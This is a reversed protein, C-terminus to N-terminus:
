ALRPSPGAKPIQLSPGRETFVVDVGQALDAAFETKLVQLAETVGQRTFRDVSRVRLANDFGRAAHAWILPHLETMHDRIIWAACASIRGRHSDALADGTRGSLTVACYAALLNATYQCGGRRALIDRLGAIFHDIDLGACTLPDVSVADLLCLTYGGKGWTESLRAGTRAAERLLAEHSGYRHPLLGTGLARLHRFDQPNLDILTRYAETFEDTTPAVARVLACFGALLAPSTREQGRFPALIEAARDMHARFADLNTQPVQGDCGNGRWAWAMDIHAHAVVLAIPYDGIHDLLIAEFEEIGDLLPADEPPAGDILAHEVAGVVDARAGYALLDAVPMGGPTASRQTDALRIETSLREWDETRALKQGKAQWIDRARDEASPDPMHIRVSGSREAAQPTMGDLTAPKWSIPRKVFLGAIRDTLTM